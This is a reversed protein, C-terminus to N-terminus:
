GHCSAQVCHKLSYHFGPEIDVTIECFMEDDNSIDEDWVQLIFHTWERGENHWELCENWDPNEDGQLCHTRKSYQVGDPNVASVKAYPDPSNWIPDTYYIPFIEPM